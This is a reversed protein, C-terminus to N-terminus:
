TSAFPTFYDNYSLFVQLFTPVECHIICNLILAKDEEKKFRHIITFLYKIEYSMQRM